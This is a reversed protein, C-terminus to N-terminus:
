LSRLVQALVTVAGDAKCVEVVNAFKTGSIQLTSGTVSASLLKSFLFMWWDTDGREPFDPTDEVQQRTLLSEEPRRLIWIGVMLIVIPDYRLVIRGGDHSWCVSKVSKFVCFILEMLKVHMAM